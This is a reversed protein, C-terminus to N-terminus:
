LHKQFNELQVFVAWKRQFSTKSRIPILCKKRRVPKLRHYKLVREVSFGTSFPIYYEYCKMNQNKMQFYSECIKENRKVFYITNSQKNENIVLDFVKFFLVIIIIKEIFSVIEYFRTQFSVSIVIM